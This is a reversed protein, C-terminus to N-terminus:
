GASGAKGGGGVARPGQLSRPQRLQLHLRAAAEECSRFNPPLQLLPTASPAGGATQLAAQPGKATFSLNFLQWTSRCNVIHSANFM